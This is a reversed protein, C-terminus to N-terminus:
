APWFVHPQGTLRLEETRAQRLQAFRVQQEALSDGGLKEQLADALVFALVAEVVPVARAPPPAPPKACGSIAVGLLVLCSWLRNMM